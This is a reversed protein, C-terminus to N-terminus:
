NKALALAAALSENFAQSDQTAGSVVNVNASQAAIAESRLIPEAMASVEGSHGGSPAQPFTVDTIAGGQITVAVQLNGYFADAVSGTYAGNKYKGATSTPTSTPTPGSPPNGSPPTTTPSGTPNTTTPTGPQTVAVPTSNKNAFILYAVFALVVVAAVVYKTISSKNM